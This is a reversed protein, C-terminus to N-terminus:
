RNAKAWLVTQLGAFGKFLGIALAIQGLVFYFPASLVSHTWGTIFRLAALLLIAAAVFISVQAVLNSSWLVSFGILLALALPSLWRLLKHSVFIFWFSPPAHRPWANGRKLAQAAGAAIRIKRKFEEGLSTVGSEWGLANPEFVVRKGQAIVQMPIVFDEILTDGPCQRFLERRIAYMAGDAGPMSYLDSAYEQLKWEISYYQQTPSDLAPTTDTLIVKGSVCGISPDEFRRVLHTLANPHYMVNADSLVIIDETRSSLIENLNTIKGRRTPQEIIVVGADGYERAIEATADSSGDSIVIIAVNGYPCRLGLSNEIKQRIVREENLACIVLVASRPRSHGLRTRGSRIKRSACFALVAPYIVFPYLFLVILTVLVAIQM